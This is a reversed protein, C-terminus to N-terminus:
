NRLIYQERSAGQLHLEDESETKVDEKLDGSLVFSVVARASHAGAM